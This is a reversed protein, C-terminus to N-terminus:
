SSKEIPVGQEDWGRLSYYETLMKELEDQSIVSGKSPGESLPEEMFRKPLVDDKKSIGERVNFSRALNIMRRAAVRLVKESKIRGTVAEYLKVLEEWSVRGRM